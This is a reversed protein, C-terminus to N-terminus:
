YLVVVPDRPLGPRTTSRGDGPAGVGEPLDCHHVRMLEILRMRVPDYQWRPDDQVTSAAGREPRCTTADGAGAACAMDALGSFIEGVARPSTGMTRAGGTGLRSARRDFNALDDHLSRCVLVQQATAPTPAWSAAIVAAGILCGLIHISTTRALPM